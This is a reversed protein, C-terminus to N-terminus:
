NSNSREFNNREDGRSRSSRLGAQRRKKKGRETRIPNM